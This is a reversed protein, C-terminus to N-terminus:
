HSYKIHKWQNDQIQKYFACCLDLNTTLMNTFRKISNSLLHYFVMNTCTKFSLHFYHCLRDNYGVKTMSIDFQCRLMLIKSPETYSHIHLNLLFWKLRFITDQSFKIIHKRKFNSSSYSGISMFDRPFFSSIFKRMLHNFSSELLSAFFIILNTM